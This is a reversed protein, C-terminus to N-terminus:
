CPSRRRRKVPASPSCMPSVTAPPLMDWSGNKFGDNAKMGTPATISATGDKDWKGDKLLTVYTVIDSTKGDSWTGNVVKFIVKKQYKDPIDDSEGGNEGGGIADKSYYLKVINDLANTTINNGQGVIQELIFDTVPREAAPIEAGLFGTGSVTADEDKIDDYFYEVVYPFKDQKFFATYLYEESGNLKQATFPNVAESGSNLTWKENSYGVSHVTYVDEPTVTGSYTGGSNEFTFM